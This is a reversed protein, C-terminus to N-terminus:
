NNQHNSQHQGFQQHFEATAAADRIETQITVIHSVNSGEYTPFWSLEAVSGDMFSFLRAIVM